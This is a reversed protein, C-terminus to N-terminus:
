VRPFLSLSNIIHSFPSICHHYYIILYVINYLRLPLVKQTTYDNSIQLITTTPHFININLNFM